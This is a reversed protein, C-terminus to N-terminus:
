DDAPTPVTEASAYNSPELSFAGRVSKTLPRYRILSKVRLRLRRASYGTPRLGSNNGGHAVLYVVGREPYVNLPTGRRGMEDRIEGHTVHLLVSAREESRDMSTPIGASEFRLVHATNCVKPLHDIAFLRRAAAHYGYGREVFFGHKPRHREVTRVLDRHILDDADCVMIFEAGGDAAALLGRHSKRLKDYQRQGPTNQNVPEDMLIVSLRDDFMNELEPYEHAVM